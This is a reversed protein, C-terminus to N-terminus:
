GKGAFLIFNGDPDAVVFTRARWPETKLPQHFAVGAAEFEQHLPAIDELTLTVSLVDGERARFGADFVPGEAHRLNLRAGGRTVQAYFPPEGYIFAPEFGLTAYFAISAGIDSVFLQPEAALNVDARM